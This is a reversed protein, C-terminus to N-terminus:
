DPAPPLVQPILAQLEAVRSAQVSPQPGAPDLAHGPRRLRLVSIGAELSGRVDRASTAVHVMPGLLERARTYIRADPKYARLRQSTMALEHDVYPAAQTRRFLEDDVNSLLGLRYHRALAPLGDAVDPWLPWQPLSGLIQDLDEAVDGSLRLDAYTRALAQQALAAYPVWGACDRQAQKNHRDWADYVDHGGFQWGREAGLRHLVVAAGARSDILASFLDFTVVVSQEAM